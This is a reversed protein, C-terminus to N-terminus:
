NVVEDYISRVTTGMQFYEEGNHIISNKSGYPGNIPATVIEPVPVSADYVYNEDWAKLQMQEAVRDIRCALTRMITGAFVIGVIKWTGNFDAVLASGSDGGMAVGGSNDKYRISILDSFTIIGNDPMDVRTSMALGDTEIMCSESEGWGKPGTTRGTTYLRPKPEDMLSDIEETTAFPLHKTYMHVGNPHHIRYSHNPHIFEPDMIILSVDIYNIGNLSFPSYRKINRAVARLHRNGDKCRVSPPYLRGDGGNHRPWEQDEIMNYPFEFNGKSDSGLLSRQNTVHANSVGVVRNDIADVAFFGLTGLIDWDPFRVIEQGGKLPTLLHPNGRLKQINPDGQSDFCALAKAIPAEKVDTKYKKGDIEIERPIIEYKSLDNLPKKKSVEFTICPEDTPQGKIDKFGVSVSNCHYPNDNFLKEIQQKISKNIAM